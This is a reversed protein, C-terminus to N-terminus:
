DTGVQVQVVQPAFFRLAELSRRQWHFQPNSLFRVGYGSGGMKLITNLWTAFCKLCSSTLFRLERFDVFVCRARLRVAEVHLQELCAKMHPMADVGGNGVCRLSIAGDDETLFISFGEEHISSLALATM